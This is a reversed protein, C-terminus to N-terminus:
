MQRYLTVTKPDHRWAYDDAIYQDSFKTRKQCIEQAMSHAQWNYGDQFADDGNEHHRQLFRPGDAYDRYHAELIKSVDSNQSKALFIANVLDKRAQVSGRMSDFFFYSDPGAFGGDDFFIGDVSVSVGSLTPDAEIKPLSDSAGSMGSMVHTRHRVGLGELIREVSCNHSTLMIDGAAILSCKGVLTPDHVKMGMLVGPTASGSAFIHNEGVVKSFEWRLRCGVVDRESNNVLLVGLPKVVEIAPGIDVPVDGVYRKLTDVFHEDSIGVLEIGYKQLDNHTVFPKM